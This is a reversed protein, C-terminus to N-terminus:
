PKSKSKKSHRDVDATIKARLHPKLDDESIFMGPPCFCSGVQARNLAEKEEETYDKHILQWVSDRVLM